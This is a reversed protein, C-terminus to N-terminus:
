GGLGVNDGLLPDGLAAVEGLYEATEIPRDQSEARREAAEAQVNREADGHERSRRQKIGSKGLCGQLVQEPRPDLDRELAGPVASLHGKGEAPWGGEQDATAKFPGEMLWHKRDPDRCQGAERGRR